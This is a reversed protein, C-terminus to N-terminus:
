LIHVALVVLLVVPVLVVVVALVLLLISCSGICLQFIVFSWSFIDNSKPKDRIVFIFGDIM